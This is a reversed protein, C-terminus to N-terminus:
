GLFQLSNHGSFYQLGISCYSFSIDSVGFWFLGIPLLASQFCAFYLRAEPSSLDIKRRIIGPTKASNSSWKLCAVLWQEQYISIFTSIIAGTSMAAFVAGSQQLDFGHSTEFVLPVSGSLTHLTLLYFLDKLGLEISVLDFLASGLCLCGM